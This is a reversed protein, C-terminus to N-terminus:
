APDVVLTWGIGVIDLHPINLDLTKIAVVLSKEIVVGVVWLLADLCIWRRREMSAYSWARWLFLVQHRIGGEECALSMTTIPDSLELILKTAGNFPICGRLYGLSKILYM